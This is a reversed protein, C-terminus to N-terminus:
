KSYSPSTCSFGNEFSRILNAIGTIRGLVIGSETIEDM